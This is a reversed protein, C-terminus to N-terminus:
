RIVQSIRGELRVTPAYLTIENDNTLDVSGSQVSEPSYGFATVRLTVDHGEENWDIAMVDGAYVTDGYYLSMGEYLADAVYDPIDEAVFLYEMTYGYRYETQYESLCARKYIGGSLICLAVLASAIFQIM